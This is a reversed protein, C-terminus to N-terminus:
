FDNTTSPAFICINAFVFYHCFSYTCQLIKAPLTYVDPRLCVKVLISANDAAPAM